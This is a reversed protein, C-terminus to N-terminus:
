LTRSDGAKFAGPRGTFWQSVIQRAAPAAAAAGFGGREITVAVVIPRDPAPVYCVYWSQDKQGNRQATGTKGYVPWRGQNWGAWVATSTGGPASAAGHLGDRIGQLADGPLSVKRKRGTTLRQILRGQDDEVQRGIHPEVIWGGNALAAYATAMQLPTAQLDGQGISLNVNDGASWPRMDSIGCFATHKEKRCKAEARGLRARWARDPVNGKEEAPLDIGTRRGLALRKAWKQLPQGKLGNLQLGLRYFYVDSSVTLARRLDVSGYSTQGANCRRGAPGPAIQTCGADTITTSPTILGTSLAAFATVPKFTSGTPYLGGIARNYRPAGAEPRNFLFDYRKQSIPRSLVSPDFTPYSGLALVSGDTPDMAVFAGPKGGGARLIAREGAKQLKLDMSLKVSRGATPDIQRGIGRYRANADVLIRKQGDRGRLFRDFTRELGEQGVVTGQKVGRYRATGMQAQTIESTVGVLQAATTGQPYERLFTREVDVLPFQDSREKIYTRLTRPVDTKITVPSYPVQALGIIVREQITQTSIGVIESVRRFDDRLESPIPPIPVPLGRKGRPRHERRGAQQGWAAALDREDQPLKDTKVQLVIAARNRVLVNGNRDVIDGRPAQIREGRVRNAQAQQLYQEGSLVQLFWLRFFVIAFLAFAVAGLTAVRLALAPSV